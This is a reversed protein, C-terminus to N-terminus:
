KNKEGEFKFKPILIPQTMFTFYELNKLKSDMIWFSALWTVFCAAAFGFGYAAVGLKLTFITFFANTVAFLIATWCAEKQFDFYFLINLVMLYGMQLFTGLMGIRLVGVQYPNLHFAEAINTIFLIAVGSLLGQFVVFKQFNSTLNKQINEKQLRITQLDDRARVSQYFDQYVKMFSTEMQILFFAMSPVITLFALFMPTDYNTYIRIGGTLAEGQPSFWFVFKDVWIALYYFIGVAVLYPYRKLYALFGFDRNTQFGFELFIRVTLVFFIIGEGITFGSLFGFFGVRTGWFIALGTGVVGGILFAFVIWIYERAASLFLMALWIANIFLYLSLAMWKESVAIPFDWLFVIAALAQIPLVLSCVSLFTPTFTELRKFYYQDAIYRTVGYLFPAVGLMSFAFCYVVMGMLLATEEVSLRMEAFMKILGLSFIVILMPGTMILASFLYAKVLDTYSETSLLKQLRFAIGAM